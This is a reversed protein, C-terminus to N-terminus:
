ELGTNNSKANEEQEKKKNAKVMSKYFKADIFSKLNFISNIEILHEIVILCWYCRLSFVLARRVDSNTTFPM